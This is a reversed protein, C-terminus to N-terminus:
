WDVTRFPSAPLNKVNYLNVDPNSAWAYRVAVPKTVMSSSVLVRVGEIKATAPHWQHDDGAIEFGRLEGDKAVLGGDTYKWDIAISQGNVSHKSAIPGCIPFNTKGYVTALAWSALRSGVDQKNKPHIDKPDGIDVTIAMGTKPLSLSKLMGERVLSWGDGDRNFNPLQVWAFPLEENWRKRWDSVLLQLQTGYLQGKGDQSNAEGQYWVVGRLTYPILPAIKANFLGGPGGRRKRQEIPDTPKQPAAKGEEKAKASQTKWRELAKEYNAKAAAEDFKSETAELADKLQKVEMQVDRAIWSEIPTGGVSSNILGVPVDLEQALQRGFFFLTASFGGVSDGSCVTWKGKSDLQVTAAASSDERFMRITPLNSKAKEQEFNNSRAVTMAMNSQGSGLWVEGVLIDDVTLKKDGSTVVLQQPQKNAALPQLRVQWKGESNTQTQLRQGSFEVAVQQDAPAWGWVTVAKDRQLVMHDSFLNALKLEAALLSSAALWLFCFLPVTALKM